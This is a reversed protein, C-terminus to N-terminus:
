VQHGLVPRISTMVIAPSSPYQLCSPPRTETNKEGWSPVIDVGRSAHGHLYTLYTISPMLHLSGWSPYEEKPLSDRDRFGIEVEQGVSRACRLWSLSSPSACAGEKGREGLIGAPSLGPKATATATATATAMVVVVLPEESKREDAGVLDVPCVWDSNPDLNWAPNPRSSNLALDLNPRPLDFDLGLSWASGLTDSCSVAYGM